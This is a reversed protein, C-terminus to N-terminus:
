FPNVRRGFLWIRSTTKTKAFGNAYKYKTPNQDEIWGDCHLTISISPIDHSSYTYLLLLSFIKVHILRKEAHRRFDCLVSRSLFFSIFFRKPRRRVILAMLEGQRRIAWCRSDTIFPAPCFSWRRRPRKGKGKMMAILRLFYVSANEESVGGKAGSGQGLYRARSAIVAEAVPPSQPFHGVRPLALWVVQCCCVYYYMTGCHCRQWRKKKVNEDRTWTFSLVRSNELGRKWVAELLDNQM